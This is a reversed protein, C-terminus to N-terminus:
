ENKKQKKGNLEEEEEEEDERPRKMPFEITKEDIINMKKEAVNIVKNVVEDLSMESTDILVADETQILPGIKRTKDQTDRANVSELIKELLEPTVKSEDGDQEQLARRKARIKPDATLFIKCPADPFIVSGIDRGEVVYSDKGNKALDQFFTTVRERVNKLAAFKFINKNIEETRIYNTIDEGKYYMHQKKSDPDYKLTIDKVVAACDNEKESDIKEKLCVYTVSRYLAGTDLLRFGLHNAIKATVTTKGTGAPGDIAIVNCYSM